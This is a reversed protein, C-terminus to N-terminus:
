FRLLLDLFFQFAQSVYGSFALSVLCVLNRLSATCSFLPRSSVFYFLYLIGILINQPESIHINLEIKPM